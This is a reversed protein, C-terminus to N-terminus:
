NEELTLVRDNRIPKRRQAEFAKRILEHLSSNLIHKFYNIRRSIIVYKIPIIGMELYLMEIPTKSHAYLIQRLLYEDVKELDNVEDKTLGYMVEINTLIGNLFMAERLRLAVELQYKGFPIERIISLINSIIGFGKSIRDKTNIKNTGDTTIINGLYKEKESRIMKSEHVNLTPCYM